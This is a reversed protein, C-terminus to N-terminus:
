VTSYIDMDSKGRPERISYLIARFIYLKQTVMFYTQLQEGCADRSSSLNQGNLLYEPTRHAAKLQCHHAATSVSAVVTSTEPSTCTLTRVGRM